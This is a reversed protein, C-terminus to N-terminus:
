LLEGIIKPVAKLAAEIPQPYPEGATRSFSTVVVAGPVGIVCFQIERNGERRITPDFFYRYTALDVPAAQKQEAMHSIFELALEPEAAFEEHDHFTATFHPEMRGLFGCLVGEDNFVGTVEKPLIVVLSSDPFRHPRWGARLLETPLGPSLGEPLDDSSSM